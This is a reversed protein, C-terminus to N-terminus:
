GHVEAFAERIHRETGAWMIDPDLIHDLAAPTIMQTMVHCRASCQASVVYVPESGQDEWSGFMELEALRRGGGARM